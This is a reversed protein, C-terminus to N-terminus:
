NDDIGALIQECLREYSAVMAKVSFRELVYKRQLEAQKDLENPALLAIRRVAAALSEPEDVSFLLREDRLVARNTPIDSALCPVDRALAELLVNPTGESRSPLVVLDASAYLEEMEDVLGLFAISADSRSAKVLSHLKRQYDADEVAGAFLVHSVVGQLAPLAHLVLEQNKTSIIRGPVLITYGSKRRRPQSRPGAPLSVANEILQAQYGYRAYNIKAGASNCVISSASSFYLRKRLLTLRSFAAENRESYISAVGFFKCIPTIRLGLASYVVIVDLERRWLYPAIRTALGAVSLLRRSRRLGRCLEFQLDGHEAIWRRGNDRDIEGYSQEVFVTLAFRGLDINDLLLRFQTEAGGFYLEPMVVGVRIRDNLPSPYGKM